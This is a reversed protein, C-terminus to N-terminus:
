FASGAIHIGFCYLPFPLVLVNSKFYVYEKRLCQSHIPNASPGSALVSASCFYQAEQELIAAVELGLLVLVDM